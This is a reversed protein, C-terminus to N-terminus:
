INLKSVFGIIKDIGTIFYENVDVNPTKLTYEIYNETPFPKKYFSALETINDSFNDILYSLFFTELIYGLTHSENELHLKIHNKDRYVFISPNNIYNDKLLLLKDTLLNLSNKYMDIAKIKGYSEFNVLIALPKGNKDKLFNMQSENTMKENEIDDGESKFKVSVHGSAYKAHDLGTGKTLKMELSVMENKKLTFLLQNHPFVKDINEVFKIVSYLYVHMIHSDTNEININFNDMINLKEAESNNISIFQMREKLVESDYQSTNKLIRVDGFAYTTLESTGIRRLANGISVSVGNLEISYFNDKDVEQKINYCSYTKNLYTNSLEKAIQNKEIKKEAKKEAKKEEQPVDKELDNM